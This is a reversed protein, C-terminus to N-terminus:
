NHINLKPLDWKNKLRQYAPASLLVIVPKQAPNLATVIALLQAEMMAVCGATGKSPKRWSHLFICSGVGAVPHKTNYQVVAGWKYLPVQRMLEASSWDPKGILSSDLLQNYYRSREDDICVSNKTLPFYALKMSAGAASAFGFAPGVSFAGVPSRGDGEKKLPGPWQNSALENGWGLGNKGVVVPVSKGIRVWRAGRQARQYLQLSGNVAEWSPTFVVLLQKSQALLEVADQEIAFAWSTNWLLFLFLMLRM